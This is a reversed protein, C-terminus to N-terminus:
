LETGCQVVRYSETGCQVVSYSTTCGKVINYFGTRHQIVTYLRACSQVKYLDTRGEPNPNFVVFGGLAFCQSVKLMCTVFLSIGM